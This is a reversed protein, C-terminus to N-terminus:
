RIGLDLETQEDQELEVETQQQNSTSDISLDGIKYGRARLLDSRSIIEVKCKAGLGSNAVVVDGDETPLVHNLWYQKNTNTPEGHGVESITPNFTACIFFWENLDDTPINPYVKHVEESSVSDIPNSLRRPLGEVGWNNQTLVGNNQRVLLRIWRKYNGDSDINTRTELRFGDGNNDLPNGFNFLTGESTKSIFRVWMTITFGDDLYSPIGNSNIKQFELLDNGPARIIIAQNPKRIKLFGSSINQYEPRDDELTEIVNDVDGLYTNLRNRMSELTKGQNISDGEAQEDLRTIFAGPQNEFSIRSQEDQEKNQIDEGVGDGDVDQFVPTPGILNDFETFFDNVQDQRTTQNPLLEFINTDLVERAKEPKIKNGSKPKTLQSLNLVDTFEGEVKVAIQLDIFSSDLKLFRLYYITKDYLEQVYVNFRDGLDLIQNSYVYQCIKEFKDGQLDKRSELTNRDKKYFVLPEDENRGIQKIGDRITTQMSLIEEESLTNSKFWVKYFIDSVVEKVEQVTEYSVPEVITEVIDVEVEPIPLQIIIEDPKLEHVVGLVGENIMATGDEHLHYLGVYPEGSIEYFWNDESSAILGIEVIPNDLLVNVDSEQENELDIEVFFEITSGISQGPVPQTLNVTSGSISEIIFNQTQGYQLLTVTMGAEVQQALNNNDVSTVSWVSADPTPMVLTGSLTVTPTQQPVIDTQSIQEIPRPTTVRPQQTETIQRRNITRPQRPVRSQQQRGTDQQRTTTTRPQVRSSQQRTTTTRPQVRSSQQRTTTTRPQVRSSQQRTTTTRQQRTTTTRQQTDTDQQRTRTSIQRTRTHYPM